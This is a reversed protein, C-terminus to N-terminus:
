LQPRERQPFRFGSRSQHHFDNRSHEKPSNNSEGVPSHRTGIKSPHRFGGQNSHHNNGESLNELRERSFEEENPGQSNEEFSRFDRPSRVKEDSHSNDENSHSPERKHYFDGRPPLPHRYSRRPSGKRHSPRIGSHPPYQFRENHERLGKKHHDHREGHSGDEREEGEEPQHIEPVHDESLRENPPSRNLDPKDLNPYYDRSEEFASPPDAVTTDPGMSLYSIVM